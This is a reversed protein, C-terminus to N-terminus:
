RDCLSIFSPGAGDGDSGCHASSVGEGHLVANEKYLKELVPVRGSEDRGHCIYIALIARLLTM